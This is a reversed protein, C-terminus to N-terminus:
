IKTNEISLHCLCLLILMKVDDVKKEDNFDKIMSDLLRIGFKYIDTQSIPKMSLYDKRKQEWNQEKKWLYLTKTSVPIKSTIEKLTMQKTVFMKEAEYFHLHKKSL